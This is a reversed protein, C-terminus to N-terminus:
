DLHGKILLPTQEQPSNLGKSMTPDKTWTSLCPINQGPHFIQIQKKKTWETLDTHSTKNVRYFSAQSRKDMPDKTRCEVKDPRLNWYVHIYKLFSQGYVSSKFYIGRKQCKRSFYALSSDTLKMQYGLPFSLEVLFKATINWRTKSHIKTAIRSPFKM